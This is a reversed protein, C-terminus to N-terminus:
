ETKKKGDGAPPVPNIKVTGYGMVFVMVAVVLLVAVSGLASYSWGSVHDAHPDYAICAILVGFLAIGVACIWAATMRAKNPLMHPGSMEISAAFGSTVEKAVKEAAAAAKQKVDGQAESAAQAYYHSILNYTYPTQKALETAVADRAADIGGSEAKEGALQRLGTPTYGPSSGFGQAISLYSQLRAEVTKDGM